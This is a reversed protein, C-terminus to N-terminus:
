GVLVNEETYKFRDEKRPKLAIALTLPGLRGVYMLIVILLKSLTDLFPTVGMSLGVTGYASVVEFLYALFSGKTANHSGQPIEIVLLLFTFLIVAFLSFFVIVTVKSLIQEPIKKSFLNVHQKLRFRAYLSSLFLLFTTTKIGGGCSGPSAGIFMLVVIVLLTSDRFSTMNVTNFGATRATVSQFFSILLGHGVSEGAMSNHFELFFILLTGAAILVCTTLIVLRSHLSLKMWTLKASKRRKLVMDYVVVFGIGGLVILGSITMNVVADHRYVTLSDSWLSFGANCFASVSHFVAQLAAHRFSYDPIFRIFLICAGLLELVATYIFVSMLLRRLNQMPDQTITDFLLEQGFVNLRGSILYIFFTSITMIGLGGAQILILIVIQGFLTFHGGTDVVILGTVCIASTSTFLADIFGLSGEGATARPLMLLLAGLLITAAFSLLVLRPPSRFFWTNFTKILNM